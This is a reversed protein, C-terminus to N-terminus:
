IIPLDEGSQPPVRRFPGNLQGDLIMVCKWLLRMHMNRNRLLTESNLCRSATEECLRRTWQKVRLEEVRSKVTTDRRNRNHYVTELEFALTLLEQDYENRVPDFDGPKLTQGFITSQFGQHLDLLSM